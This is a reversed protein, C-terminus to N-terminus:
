NGLQEKIQRLFEITRRRQKWGLEWSLYCYPSFSVNKFYNILEDIEQANVLESLSPSKKANYEKNKIELLVEVPQHDSFEPHPHHIKGSVPKFFRNSFIYDLIGEGPSGKEINWKNKECFTCFPGKYKKVLAVNKFTDTLDFLRHFFTSADAIPNMNFDGAFILPHSYLDEKLWTRFELLLTLREPTLVDAPRDFGELDKRRPITHTNALLVRNGNINVMVTGLGYHFAVLTKKCDNYYSGQWSTQKFQSDSLPYRSLIALDSEEGFYVSYPYGANKKFYEFQEPQWIEQLFVIDANQKKLWEAAQEMRKEVEPAERLLCWPGACVLYTNLTIVKLPPPAAQAPYPFSFCLIFFLSLRLKPLHM